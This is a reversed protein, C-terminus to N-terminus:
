LGMEKLLEVRDLLHARIRAMSAERKRRDLRRYTMALLTPENDKWRISRPLARDLLCATLMYRCVRRGEVTMETEQGMREAHVARLICADRITAFDAYIAAMEPTDPGVLKAEGTIPNILIDDPHPLLEPVPQGRERAKKVIQNGKRKIEAYDLNRQCTAEFRERDLKEARELVYKQTLRKGKIAETIMSRQVAQIATLDLPTGNERVTLTRHLEQELFYETSLSLRRDSPTPKPPRGRPNGSQGKKFRTAAPPKGYGVAYSENDTHPKRRSGAGPRQNASPWPDNRDKTM